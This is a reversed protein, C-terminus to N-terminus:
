NSEVNEEEKGRKRQMLRENREAKQALTDHTWRPVYDAERGCRVSSKGAQM